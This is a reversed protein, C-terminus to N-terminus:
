PTMINMPKMLDKLDITKAPRFFHSSTTETNEMKPHHLGILGKQLIM